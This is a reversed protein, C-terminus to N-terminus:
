LNADRVKRMSEGLQLLEREGLASWLHSRLSAYHDPLVSELWRRGRVTLVVVLGRRDSGHPRRKVLRQQELRDLLRTCGSTSMVCRDALDRPRVGSEAEQALHILVELESLSMGSDAKMDAEIAALLRQSGELLFGFARVDDHSLAAVPEPHNEPEEIDM